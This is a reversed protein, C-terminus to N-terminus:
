VHLLCRYNDQNSHRNVWLFKVRDPSEFIEMRNGIIPSGIGPVPAMGAGWIRYTLLDLYYFRMTNDKTFYIRDAGDYATMTGTTLTEIQPSTTIQTFKDTTIDLCDFGQVAGGRPIFINKGAKEKDSLGYNWSCNIGLGKTTASLISYSTSASVPATTTGFTLTNATNSTITVEVAQGTGSLMKLRRGAWINVVWSKSTDQLTTTSHTGTAIGSDLAGIAPRNCISYRSTGNIPATTATKFTLTTATNSAIEMALMTASGTAVAPQTTTFYCIKNAHENVTWNKTADVLVTTSLAGFTAAASSGTATYTYTTAGTVTIAASINNQVASAGTDGKHSITWGTKFGHAFATTVTKTTGAGTISTVPIAPFEGYQASGIRALGDDVSRGFTPMDLEISHVPVAATGGLFLYVNDKDGEISYISTADLATGLPKYLTIVTGTNSAIPATQGAGTGALVRIIYNTWRNTTWAKTSDTLTTTSGASATGADFGLVKYRSTNTPAAGLASSWTLTDSTNSLIQRINGSSTGSYIFVYRDKLEDIDWAKTTDQLTTTSHTGLAIGNAWISANETTREITGDTGAALFVNTAATRIYWTDSIKDRIQLTYFPAAAAGSFLVEAGSLFRFRSTEDPTVDWATDVTAVASEIAYITQVGATASFPPSYAMPNAQNNVAYHAVDVFTITTADNYLVRRVQGVGSGFTVRIQYGAWQNIAWAKTSDTITNTGVATIVGSDAIVAEAVETVMRQQGKGTGSIIRVEFGKLADASYHPITISTSTAALVRGEFGYAGSFKLSSFTAPAIPPSSLQQFCDTWTDYQWYSATTFLFNMLRSYEPHFLSNDPYCTGSVASTLLTNPTFNLQEWNPLDLMKDTINQIGAM